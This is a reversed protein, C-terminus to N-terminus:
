DNRNDLMALFPPMQRRPAPKNAYAPRGWYRVEARQQKGRRLRTVKWGEFLFINYGKTAADQLLTKRAFAVAGRLNTVKKLEFVYVGSMTADYVNVIDLAAQEEETFMPVADVSQQEVVEWPQVKRHFLKM